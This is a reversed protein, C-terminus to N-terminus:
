GCSFSERIRRCEASFWNELIRTRLSSSQAASMPVAWYKKTTSGRRWNPSTFSMTDKPGCGNCLLATWAKTQWLNM